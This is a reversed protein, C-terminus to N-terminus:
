GGHLLTEPGSVLNIKVNDHKLDNLIKYYSYFIDIQAVEVELKDQSVKM